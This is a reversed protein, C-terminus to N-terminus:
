KKETFEKADKAIFRIYDYILTPETKIDKCIDFIIEDIEEVSWVVFDINDMLNGSLINRKAKSSTFTHSVRHSGDSKFYRTQYLKDFKEIFKRHNIVNSESYKSKYLKLLSSLNHGKEKLTELPYHNVLVAKFFYEIAHHFLVTFITWNGRGIFKFYAVRGIIYYESGNRIFHFQEDSINNFSM